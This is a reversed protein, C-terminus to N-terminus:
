KVGRFQEETLNFAQMVAREEDTLPSDGNAEVTKVMPANEGDLAKYDRMANFLKAQIDQAEKGEAIAEKVIQALKVNDPQEDAYGQLNLVRKREKLVGAELDAMSVATKEKEAMIKEEAMDPTNKENNKESDTIMKKEQTNLMAAVQEIDDESEKLKAKMADLAVRAMAMAEDEDEAGDGAPIVEDAFGQKVIDEGYLYTESEMMSRIQDMEKKTKKEYGKALMNALSELVDAQKKMEKASGVALSWPEHIMYVANDEVKVTDAALSIYTAMSMAVGKVLANVKGGARRYDRIANYIAIGEFVSGGPSNILLNVEGQAQNLKDRVGSSTIDFGVIGELNIEM